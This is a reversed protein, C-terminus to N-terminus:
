PILNALIEVVAADEIRDDDGLCDAVGLLYGALLDHGTFIDAAAEFGQVDRFRAQLFQAHLAKRSGEAYAAAVVVPMVTDVECFPIAGLPGLRGVPNLRDLIFYNRQ